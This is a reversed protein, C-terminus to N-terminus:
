LNVRKSTNYAALALAAIKVMRSRFEIPGTYEAMDIQRQVFMLWDYQDHSNDHEIGGWQLDDKDRQEFLRTVFDVSDSRDKM